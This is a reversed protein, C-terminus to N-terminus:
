TAPTLRVISSPSMETLFVAGSPAACVGHPVNWVPRCRGVLRGEADLASLCPRQDTVLVHGRGDECLGMPHHFGTWSALHAGERDFVEIRDNERDAVLVRDRRDVCIAHPTSLEGPGDGPRGWTALWEGAASFRHIASNGYGDAVYIEGDPAGAAATPHNFPRQFRPRHREGLSMARSGDPRHVHIQHADRDALLVRGLPDVSIGHPDAVPGEGWPGEYSGDPAFSVVPPGGRQYVLVREDATAAVTSVLGLSTEPPLDGWGREVRYLADAITVFQASDDVFTM